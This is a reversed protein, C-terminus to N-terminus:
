SKPLHYYHGNAALSCQQGAKGLFQLVWFIVWTPSNCDLSFSSM